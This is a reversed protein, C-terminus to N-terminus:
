TPRGSAAAAATESGGMEVMQFDGALLAAATKTGGGGLQLNVDLGNKAYIGAEKAIYLPWSAASRTPYNITIKQPAQALLGTAAATLILTTRAIPRM